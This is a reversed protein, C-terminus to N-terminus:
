KQKRTIVRVWNGSNTTTRTAVITCPYLFVSQLSHLHLFLWHKESIVKVLKTKLWVSSDQSKFVVRRRQWMPAPTTFKSFQSSVSAVAAASTFITEREHTQRSGAWTTWTLMCGRYNTLTMDRGEKKMIVAKGSCWGNCNVVVASQIWM